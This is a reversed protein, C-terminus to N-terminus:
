CSWFSMSARVHKKQEMMGFINVCSTFVNEVCHKREETEKDGADLMQTSAYKVQSEHSEIVPWVM